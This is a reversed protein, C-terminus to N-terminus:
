ELGEFYFESDPGAATWEGSVPDREFGGGHELALDMGRGAEPHQEILCHGCVPGGYTMEGDSGPSDSLIVTVFSHGAPDGAPDALVGRVDGFEGYLFM